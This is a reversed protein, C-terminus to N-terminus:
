GSAISVEYNICDINGMLVGENGLSSNKIEDIQLTTDSTPTVKAINVNTQDKAEAQGPNPAMPTILSPSERSSSTRTALPTTTNSVDFHKDRPDKNSDLLNENATGHAENRGVLIRIVRKHRQQKCGDAVNCTDQETGSRSNRLFQQNQQGKRKLLQMAEAKYDILLPRFRM